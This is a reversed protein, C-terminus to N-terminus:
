GRGDPYDRYNFYMDLREADKIASDLWEHFTLLTDIDVGTNELAAIVQELEVDLLKALRKIKEIDAPPTGPRDAGTDTDIEELEDQRFYVIINGQGAFTVGYGDAKDEDISVLEGITNHWKSSEPRRAYIGVTAGIKLM